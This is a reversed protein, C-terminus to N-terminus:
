EVMSYIYRNPINCIMITTRTEKHSEINTMNVVLEKDEKRRKSQQDEMLESETLPIMNLSTIKNEKKPKNKLVMEKLASISQIKMKKKKEQEHDSDKMVSLITVEEKKSEDSSTVSSSSSSSTMQEIVVEHSTRLSRPSSPPPTFLPSDNQHIRSYKPTLCCSSLPDTMSSETSLSFTPDVTTKHAGYDFTNSQVEKMSEHTQFPYFQSTSSFYDVPREQNWEQPELDMRSFTSSSSYKPDLISPFTCTSSYQTYNPNRRYYQVSSNMRNTNEYSPFTRQFTRPDKRNMYQFVYPDSYPSLNSRDEDMSHLFPATSYDYTQSASLYRNEPPYYDSRSRIESLCADLNSGPYTHYFSPPMSFDKKYLLDRDEEHHTRNTYPTYQNFHHCNFHPDYVDPDRPYNNSARHSYM